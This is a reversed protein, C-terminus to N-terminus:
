RAEHMSLAFQDDDEPERFHPGAPETAEGIAQVLGLVVAITFAGTRASRDHIAESVV